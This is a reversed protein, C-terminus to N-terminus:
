PNKTNGLNWGKYSGKFILQCMITLKVNFQSNQQQGRITIQDHNTIEDDSRGARVLRQGIWLSGMIAGLGIFHAHQYFWNWFKRDLKSFAGLSFSVAYLTASNDLDLSKKVIFDCSKYALCNSSYRVPDLYSYEVNKDSKKSVHNGWPLFPNFNKNKKERTRLDAILVGRYYNIM